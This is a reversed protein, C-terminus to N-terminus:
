FIFPWQMETQPLTGCPDALSGKVKICHGDMEPTMYNDTVVGCGRQERQFTAGQCRSTL